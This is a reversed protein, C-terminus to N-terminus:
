RSIFVAAGGLGGFPVGSGPAFVGGPTGSTGSRVAALYRPDLYAAILDPLKRRQSATLLSKIAPAAAVLLDVSAERAKRYRDYTDGHDYRDPLAVYHRIVPGWIADLRTVYWWNLTALSDAQPGALHLSDSQALITAIPNIIGGSGYMARLFPASPRVGALTRGRDLTQTLYQRERTPGLDIRLALTVVVPNRVASVAQSTAGFRQNVEYTFRHATPDFGRVILLRPDPTPTQGWGRLHSEGHLLFDLAGLPNGVQLSLTARQPLKVKLPNFAISLFGTTTWPGECSNRGAVRGLQSTLCDRVSRSSGALLRSMGSALATDATGAPDFVFARDNAYGDGNLDGSVIPTYPTGSTFRQVWNVRLLDFLNIGLNVQIQHRADMASRADSVDLPSGATSSFGNARDRVSSLTYAIGWTFKSNLSLPTIVFQLQRSTSRLNSVLETVRNFQTTVRSDLTAVAGTTPVISTPQVFVPRNGEDPLTFRATPDFNLDRSGAQDLNVSYTGAATAMLRNDLVPAAWQLNARVSKEAAYDPAFLTVNPAGSAFVTGGSGDACQAPVAGPDAAYGGWDPAPVAAGVCTLQQVGSPLGTNVMAQGLLQAGPTNQFVGVGGRIIGRPVRAAGMFAGIQPATGYTWSFGLRPSVHVGNPVHANAVGFLPAVDPNVAPHDPYRNADLRVGYVIQVDSSPRYSDGLSLAGILESGSTRLSGLQRTFSAPRGAELDSLANYTFTGLLNSAQEQAWADRRLEIEFRVRHRNDLSFWSLQSRLDLSGTTGTSRLSTGGFRIAQVGSTGDAFDSQVLVTGGPLELYPSLYRRSASWSLGTESLVSGVYATHQLRASGSWGTSGFSATPLQTGGSSAPSSRNWSGNLTLNLAQASASSPPMFDFSGLLSAQDGRRSSPFAPVTVPVGAGRLIGLLRGVSDQSVGETQLGLADTNLLTALDNSRRGLQYSVNYFAKDYAIPGSLLGGLSLNTYQQGLARGAPDTWELPPANGIASLSQVLYNSGPFTRVNLAGGSFGGQSVDYPSTAVSVAVGADRPLDTASSALGNLTTLNQDTSLGLVSFGSPDGNTGPIYTVGPLTAGMAALDGAQDPPVLSPNISRETGSVDGAGENRPPRRRHGATVYLTDLTIPALRADAILVSEDALRKVEFRRTTFGIGAFSVWYDGDGGPFIITYRGDSNTRATRSVNGSISTATVTVGLIPAGDAAATVRGRIVDAQAALSRANGAALGIPVVVCWAIRRAFRAPRAAAAKTVPSGIVLQASAELSRFTASSLDPV